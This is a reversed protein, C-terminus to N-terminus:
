RNIRGVSLMGHISIGQCMWGEKKAAFEIKQPFIIFYQKAKILAHTSYFHKLELGENLKLQSHDRFHQM